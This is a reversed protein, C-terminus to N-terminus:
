SERVYRFGSDADVIHRDFHAMGADATGVKVNVLPVLPGTGCNGHGHSNTMFKGILNDVNARVDVIEMGAFTDAAFTV